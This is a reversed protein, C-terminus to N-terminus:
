VGKIMAAAADAVRMSVDISNTVHAITNCTAVGRAGAAMLDDRASGALVAHVGICVAPECDELHRLTEIMTAGSSIIDDLLVPTHGRYAAPDPRTIEVERDGRRTKALVMFPADAARAVASVWQESEADPGILFPRDVSAILWSAIDPAAAVVQTPITYVRALSDYRHLHPDVTVLWDYAESLMGAVYRSTVAEGARFRDDQRMYALYPAVLGVRRAGLDRAAAAALLAMFVRESAPHLTCAIVVVRGKVDDDFRLYDEGDPFRRWECRMLTGGCREAIRRALPGNGPMAIVLPKM